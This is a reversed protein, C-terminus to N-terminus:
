GEEETVFYEEGKGINELVSYFIEVDITSNNISKKLVKRTIIKENEKLKMQVNLDAKELALTVGDELTLEREHTLVEYETMKIFSFDFFRFWEKEETVYNQLRSKFIKYNGSKMGVGLNYRKKGTKEKEQYHIPLSVSTQYWVEALVEGEACVNNKVEENFKIEGSILVDGAEVYKGKQVLAEGHSVKVQDVMGSKSAVIHCFGKPEIPQNIIREEVRVIYKMGVSEIELWELQDKYQNLVDKKIANLAEYNKRLSFSKIGKEELEKAVLNRIEKNEHIVNVSVVVQSFFNVLLLFFLVSLVKLPTLVRKLHFLGSDDIYYFKSTVITKKVKKFDQVDIKLYLYADREQVDYVNIRNKYFKMLVKNKNVVKTRIYIYHKM